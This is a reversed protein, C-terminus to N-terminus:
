APRRRCLRRRIAHLAGALVLWPLRRAFARSPPLRVLVASDHNWPSVYCTSYRERHGQIGLLEDDSLYEEPPIFSYRTGVHVRGGIAYEYEVWMSEMDPGAVIAKTTPVDNWYISSGTNALPWLLKWALIAYALGVIV